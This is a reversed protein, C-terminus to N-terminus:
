LMDPVISPATYNKRPPLDTTSKLQVGEAVKLETTALAGQLFVPNIHQNYHWPYVEEFYETLDEIVMEAEYPALIKHSKDWELYAPNFAFFSTLIRVAEWPLLNKAVLFVAVQGAIEEPYGKGDKIIRNVMKLVALQIVHEHYHLINHQETLEEMLNKYQPTDAFGGKKPHEPQM